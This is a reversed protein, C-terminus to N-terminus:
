SSAFAAFTAFEEIWSWGGITGVLLVSRRVSSSGVLGYFLSGLSSQVFVSCAM